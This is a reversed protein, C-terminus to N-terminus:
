GKNDGIQKEDEEGKTEWTKEMACTDAVRWARAPVLRVGHGEPHLLQDGSEEVESKAEVKCVIKDVASVEVIKDLSLVEVRGRRAGSTM